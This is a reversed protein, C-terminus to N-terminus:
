LSPYCADHGHKVRGDVGEKTFNTPLAKKSFFGGRAAGRLFKSQNKSLLQIICSQLVSFGRSLPPGEAKKVIVPVRGRTGVFLCKIIGFLM